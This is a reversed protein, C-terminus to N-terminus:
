GAAMLSASRRSTPAALLGAGVQDRQDLGAREVSGVGRGRDVAVEVLQQRAVRLDVGQQQAAGVVRQQPRQDLAAGARCTATTSEAKVVASAM